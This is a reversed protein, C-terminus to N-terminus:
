ISGRDGHTGYPLNSLADGCVGYLVSLFCLTDFTGKRIIQQAYLKLDLPLFLLILEKGLFPCGDLVDAYALDLLSFRCLLTQKSM